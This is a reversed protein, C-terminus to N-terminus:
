ADDDDEKRVMTFPFRLNKSLWTMWDRGHWEALKKEFAEDSEPLNGPESPHLDWSHDHNDKMM